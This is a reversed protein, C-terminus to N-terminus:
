RTDGAPPPEWPQTFGAQRGETAGSIDANEEQRVSSALGDQGDGQDRVTFASGTPAESRGPSNGATDKLPQAQSIAINPGPLEVREKVGCTSCRWGGPFVQMEGDCVPCWGGGHDVSAGSITESSSPRGDAPQLGRRRQPGLLIWALLVMGIVISSDAVNFVPWPGVDLFDIVHGLRVRDLLNGAAGGLQMGLSIRLAYSPQRQSRHILVLVGIGVFAVLILPSNQGQFLGFASGTNYTHLIRFFGDAPFAARLPLFEQVLFKTFQDILFVLTAVQLLLLDKYIPSAKIAATDPANGPQAM